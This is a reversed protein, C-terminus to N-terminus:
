NQFIDKGLGKMARVIFDAAVASFGHNLSAIGTDHEWFTGTQKAMPGYLEKIEKLAQEFEGLEILTNLRMTYGIFICGYALDPDKQVLKRRYGWEELYLHMFTDFRPDDPLVVGTFVAYTQCAESKEKIRKGGIEGDYFYTGDFAKQIIMEKLKQAKNLLKPQDCLYAIDELLKKYLMNTPYSVDCKAVYENADSWEIFNWGPLKKLMGDENEYSLLYQYFKWCIDQFYEKAEGSRELYERVEFVFWMGWQVILGLNGCPYCMPLLGDELGPFEKAMVFNKLFLEEAKTNGSLLFSAKGTFFSDCLWGARERGPCDMFCDITNQRYAEKSAEFIDMLEEDECRFDVAEYSPYSYERIGMRQVEVKGKRVLVTVYMFSYAEFSQLEYPKESKKLNYRIVNTFEDGYIGSDPQGDRLKESFIIYVESDELAKITSRIFGTNIRELRYMTYRDSWMGTQYDATYIGHIATFVDSTIENRSFGKIKYNLGTIQRKEYTCFDHKVEFGGHEVLNMNEKLLFRPIEFGRPILTEYGEYISIPASVFDEEKWNTMISEHDYNWVETFARQYSYRYTKQERAQNLPIALFDRGTYKISKGDEFIEAQLFSKEDYTYFSACHYGALNVCLVNEGSKIPLRIEDYRKYGHPARAPGYHIFEGNLYVEYLSEGTINLIYEKIDGAQFKCKFGAQFNVEENRNKIFIRKAYQFM